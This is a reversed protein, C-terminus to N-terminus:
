KFFEQASIEKVNETADPTISIEYSSFSHGAGAKERKMKLADKGTNLESFGKETKFGGKIKSGAFIKNKDWDNGFYVKLFYDGDPVENMKFTAGSGMYQNRITKESAKDVLCVVAESAGSNYITINNKSVDDYVEKGFLDSYPSDYNNIQPEEEAPAAIKDAQKFLGTIKVSDEKSISTANQPKDTSYSIIFYLLILAIGVSVIIQFSESNDSKQPPRQQPPRQQQQKAQAQQQAYQYANGTYQTSSSYSRQQAYTNGNSFGLDYKKRKEPNSLVSYAQQIEKFYDEAAKNGQNKDPHYKKALERYASKIEDSNATSKVGLIIYYNKQQM